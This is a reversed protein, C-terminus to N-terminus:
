GRGKRRVLKRDYEQGRPVGRTPPTPKHKAHLSPSGGLKRGGKQKAEQAQKLAPTMGTGFGKGAKAKAEVEKRRGGLTGTTSISSGTFNSLHKIESNAM